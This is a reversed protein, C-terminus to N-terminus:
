TLVKNDNSLNNDVALASLNVYIDDDISDSTRIKLFLGDISHFIGEGDPIRGVTEISSDQISSDLTISDIFNTDVPSGAFFSITNGDKTITGNGVKFCTETSTNGVKASVEDILM